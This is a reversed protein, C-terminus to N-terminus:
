ARKACDSSFISPADAASDKHPIAKVKKDFLISGVSAKLNNFILGIFIVINTTLLTYNSYYGVFVTGVFVSIIISDTNTQLTGSIKYIFLAKIDKFIGKREAKDLKKGKQKLYPYEKLAINNQFLNCMFNLILAVILYILYNKFLFLVAIQALCTIIKFTIICRSLM